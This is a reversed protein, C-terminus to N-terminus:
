AQAAEGFFSQDVRRSAGNIRARLITHRQTLTLPWLGQHGRVGPVFVSSGAACCWAYRGIEYNGFAIERWDLSQILQGTVPVVEVLNVVGVIAGLPLDSVGMIGHRALVDKFPPEFAYEINETSLGAHIALPGRYATTWARTEIRKAGVALLTAWPQHLTLAKM